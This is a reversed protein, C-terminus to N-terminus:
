LAFPSLISFRGYYQISDAIFLTYEYAEKVSKNHKKAYNASYNCLHRGYKIEFHVNLKNVLGYSTNKVEFHRILIQQFENILEEKNIELPKNVGWFYEKM